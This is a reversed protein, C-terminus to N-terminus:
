GDREAAASIDSFAQGQRAQLDEKLEETRAQFERGEFVAPIVAVLDDVLRDADRALRRGRGAPLRLLTARDRREFDHVYCDDPSPGRGACAEALVRRVVSSRGTGPAGMVFANYGDAHMGAAFRLAEVARTQGVPGDLHDLEATTSFSLEAPDVVSRLQRPTLPTLPPM